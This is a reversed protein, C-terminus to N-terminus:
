GQEHLENELQENKRELENKTNEFQRKLNNMEDETSHLEHELAEQKEESTKNYEQAAQLKSNVETVQEAHSAQYLCTQNLNTLFWVHSLVTKQHVKSSIINGRM